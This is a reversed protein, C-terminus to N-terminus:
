IWHLVVGRHRRRASLVALRVELGVGGESGLDHAGREGLFQPFLVVHSRQRDALSVVDENHATGVLVSLALDVLYVSLLVHDVHVSDGLVLDVSVGHGDSELCGVNDDGFQM